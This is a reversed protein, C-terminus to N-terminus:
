YCYLHGPSELGIYSKGNLVILVDKELLINGISKISVSLPWFGAM